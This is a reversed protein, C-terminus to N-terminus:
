KVGINNWQQTLSNFRDAAANLAGMTSSYTTADNAVGAALAADANKRWDKAAAVMQDAVSRPEGSLEKAKSEMGSIIGDLRALQPNVKEPVGSFDGSSARANMEQLISNMTDIAQNASETFANRDAVSLIGQSKSCAGLGLALVAALVLAARRAPLPRVALPAHPSRVDM